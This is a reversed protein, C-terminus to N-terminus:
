SEVSQSSFNEKIEKGGM